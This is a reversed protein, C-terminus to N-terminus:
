KNKQCILKSGIDAIVDESFGMEILVRRQNKLNYNYSRKVTAADIWCGDSLLIPGTHELTKLAELRSRNGERYRSPTKAIYDDLEPSIL